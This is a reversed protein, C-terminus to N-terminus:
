QGSDQAIRLPGRLWRDGDSGGSLRVVTLDPRRSVLDVVKAASRDHTNWAWRIIHEGDTFITRLPPEVNSNWLIQRRLRRLITRQVVRCMVTRRPLDLWVV